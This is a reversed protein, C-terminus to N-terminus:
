PGGEGATKRSLRYAVGEPVFVYGQRSWKPDRGPSTVFVLGAEVERRVAQEGFVERANKLPEVAPYVRVDDRWGETLRLYYIPHVSASDAFLVANRPLIRALERAFREAGRDGTKWPRLFYTYSDRHPLERAVGLDLHCARAVGPLPWYVLAPMAALAVAGWRWGRGRTRLVRDAGLGLVMALMVWAPIFFTYQDAVDYRVAWVFHVVGLGVLVTRWLKDDAGRLAAIGPIVLLLGPTPFNLGLFLVSRMVQIPSPFVNLVSGSYNVGFLASQVTEGVSAGSRLEQVILALYISTGALWAVVMLGVMAWRVRRTWLLWLLMVGYCALSLLALMHNSIGLGNLGFLLVLWRARGTRRYQMLSLLEATLLVTSVMYVEAVAAHQWFTHAVMLSVAGTVAGAARGTAWHVLLFVNAVTLAGLVVSVLTTKFASEAFPLFQFGITLVYYLPHSLALGGHGSLDGRFTRVQAMGSDQWLVGPSMSALYLGLALFLVLLYARRAKRPPCSPPHEAPSAAVPSM